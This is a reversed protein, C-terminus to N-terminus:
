FADTARKRFGLRALMGNWIQKSSASRHPSATSPMSLTSLTFVGARDVAFRIANEFRTNFSLVLLRRRRAQSIGLADVDWEAEIVGGPTLFREDAM